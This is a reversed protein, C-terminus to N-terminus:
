RSYLIYNNNLYENTLTENELAKTISNVLCTYISGETSIIWNKIVENTVQDYPIYNEDQVPEFSTYCQYSITSFENTHNLRWWVKIIANPYNTNTNDTLINILQIEPTM